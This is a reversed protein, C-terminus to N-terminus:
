SLMRVNDPDLQAAPADRFTHESVLRSDNIYPQKDDDM